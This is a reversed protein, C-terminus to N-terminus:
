KVIFSLGTLTKADVVAGDSPAYVKTAITGAAVDFQSLRTPNNTNSHMTQLLYAVKNGKATTVVKSAALGVHGSTVVKVNSFPAVLRDYIYQPSSDGYEWRTLSQGAGDIDASPNLFSHTQIIVNATPHGAIIQEAWDVVTERPWTELDLVLWDAGEASFTSFINDVKGAEFAGAVAGYDEASWFSNFTTTTRQYVRTLKTDRAGGGPGTAMTDHNGISLQYPIGADELPDLAAEAVVYQDHTDTDWNVVDGTHMVFRLDLDDKHAVLWKSRDVFRTSSAWVEQQTDPYTAITFVGDGDGPVPQAPPVPAPPM